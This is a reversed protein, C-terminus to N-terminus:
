EFDALLKVVMLHDGPRLSHVEGAAGWPLRSLKEPQKFHHEVCIPLVSTKALLEM